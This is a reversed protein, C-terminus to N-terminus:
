YKELSIGEFLKRLEEQIHKGQDHNYWKQLELKITEFDAEQQKLQDYLVQCAEPRPGWSFLDTGSSDKVILKPIAKGGKTLYQQIRFPESDRLEYEVQIAPNNSALLHLFPVIHSADGCWPETIVIWQQSPLNAMLKLLEPDLVATKLWRNMRAWNLKAYHFYDQQHYPEPPNSDKLISEFYHVYQEFKM